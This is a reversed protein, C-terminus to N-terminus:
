ELMDFATVCVDAFQENFYAIAIDARDNKAALEAYKKGYRRIQYIAMETTYSSCENMISLATAENTAREIAASFQYMVPPINIPSSAM